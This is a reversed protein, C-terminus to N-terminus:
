LALDYTSLIAMLIAGIILLFAVSEGALRTTPKTAAM